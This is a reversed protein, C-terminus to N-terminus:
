CGALLFGPLFALAIALYAGFGISAALTLYLHLALDGFVNNLAAQATMGATCLLIIMLLIPWIARLSRNFLGLSLIFAGGGLLLFFHILLDSLLKLSHEPQRVVIVIALLFGLALFAILPISQGRRDPGIVLTIIILFPLMFCLTVAVFRIPLVATGQLSLWIIAAFMAFCLAGLFEIGLVGFPISSRQSPAQETKPTTIINFRLQLDDPREPPLNVVITDGGRILTRIRRRYDALVLVGLLAVVFINLILFSLSAGSFNGLTIM